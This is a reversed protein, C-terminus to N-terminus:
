SLSFIKMEQRICHSIMPKKGISEARSADQLAMADTADRDAAEVLVRLAPEFVDLHVFYEGVFRRALACLSRL